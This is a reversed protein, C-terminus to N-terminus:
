LCGCRDGAEHDPVSRTADAQRQRLQQLKRGYFLLWRPIVYHFFECMSSQAFPNGSLRNNTVPCGCACAKYWLCNRCESTVLEQPNYPFTRRGAEFLDDSPEFSHENVTMPCSALRGDHQIVVHNWGTGCCISPHPRDFSLDQIRITRRLDLEVAPNELVEFAREFGDRVRQVHGAWGPREHCGREWSCQVLNHVVQLRINHIGRELVTWRLLDPLSEVSEASLTANIHVSIGEAQLMAINREIWEWSGRGRSGKFVRYIDHYRGYGDLSINVSADKMRRLLQLLQDNFVTGNSLLAPQM